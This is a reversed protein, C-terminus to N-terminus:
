IIAWTTTQHLNLFLCFLVLRAPFRVQNHNSTFELLSLVKFILAKYSSLNHNSTFELLSLVKDYKTGYFDTNHNSTFELLSLVKIFGYIRRQYNHNSTFELLTYYFTFNLVIITQYSKLYPLPNIKLLFNYFHM